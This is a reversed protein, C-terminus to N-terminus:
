VTHQGTSNIKKTFSHVIENFCTTYCHVPFDYSKLAIPTPQTIHIRGMHWDFNASRWLPFSSVTNDRRLSIGRRPPPISRLAARSHGFKEDWTKSSVRSTPHPNVISYHKTVCTIRKHKTTDSASISVCLYCTETNSQM